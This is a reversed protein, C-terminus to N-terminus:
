VAVAALGEDSGVAEVILDFLLRFLDDPQPGGAQLHQLLRIAPRLLGGRRVRRGALSAHRLVRPEATIWSRHIQAVELPTLCGTLGATPRLWPEIHAGGSLMANLLDGSDELGSVRQLASVLRALAADAPLPAGSFCLEQVFSSRAEGVTIEGAEFAELIADLEPTGTLAAFDAPKVAARLLPRLTLYRAHDFRYLYWQVHM